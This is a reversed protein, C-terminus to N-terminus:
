SANISKVQAIVCDESHPNEDRWCIDRPASDRQLHIRTDMAINAPQMRWFM